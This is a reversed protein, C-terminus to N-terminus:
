IVTSISVASRAPGDTPPCHTTQERLMIAASEPTYNGLFVSGANTIQEAVELYNEDFHDLTGACVFQDPKIM